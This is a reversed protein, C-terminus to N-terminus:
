NLQLALVSDTVQGTEGDIEGGIALVTDHAEAACVLSQRPQPLKVDLLHWKDDRFLETTRQPEFVGPQPSRAGGVVVIMEEGGPRIVVAGPLGRPRQMSTVTMWTDSMPDYREVDPVPEDDSNLGGIAYLHQSTAVLRLSHRPHDMAAIPQWGGGTNTDLAVVKKTAASGPVVGGAVYIVGGIAAAGARLRPVPLRQADHWAGHEFREVSSRIHEDPGVGGIAYVASGTGAAALNSRPRTMPPLTNWAPDDHMKRKEASRFVEPYELDPGFGGAV